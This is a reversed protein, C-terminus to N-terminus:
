QRHYHSKWLNLPWLFIGHSVLIYVFLQPLQNDSTLSVATLCDCGSKRNLAFCSWERRQQWDVQRFLDAYDGTARIAFYWECDILLFLTPKIWVYSESRWLTGPPCSDSIYQLHPITTFNRFAYLKYNYFSLASWMRPQTFSQQRM